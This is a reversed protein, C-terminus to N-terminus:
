RAFDAIAQLRARTEAILGPILAADPLAGTIVDAALDDALFQGTREALWMRLRGESEGIESLIEPRGAVVSIIDEVDHSGILDSGGRGEYASWKTAVFVAAPPIRITLNPRLAFPTSQAIADAYWENSFGLISEDTPMVDLVWDESSRWRCIPAGPRMDETFGLSRLEEGLRQYEVRTTVAVIVDVDDTPRIRVAAPDTVLLEAVQGGVFVVRDVLPGLRIAAQVLM